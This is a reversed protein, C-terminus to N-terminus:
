VGFPLQLLELPTRVSQELLVLSDEVAVEIAPVTSNEKLPEYLLARAVHQPEDQSVQECLINVM